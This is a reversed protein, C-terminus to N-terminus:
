KYMERPRQGAEKRKKADDLLDDLSNAGKIFDHDQDAAQWALQVGSVFSPM